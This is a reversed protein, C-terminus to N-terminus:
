PVIGRGRAFENNPEPIPASPQAGQFLEVVNSRVLVRWAPGLSHAVRGARAITAQTVAVQRRRRQPTDNNISTRIPATM